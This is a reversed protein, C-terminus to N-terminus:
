YSGFLNQTFNQAAELRAFVVPVVYTNSQPQEYIFQNGGCEECDVVDDVDITGIAGSVIVTVGEIVEFTELEQTSLFYQLQEYRTQSVRM